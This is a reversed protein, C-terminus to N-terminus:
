NRVERWYIVRDSGRYFGFNLTGSPDDNSNDGDNDFRLWAQSSVDFNVIVSGFNNVGPASYWLGNGLSSTGNNLSQQALPSFIATEGDALNDTYSTLDFSSNSAIYVSCNDATNITWQTGDFFESRLRIELDETEPGYSDILRLRGLRVEFSNSSVTGSSVTDDDEAVLDIRLDFNTSTSAYQFNTDTALYNSAGNIFGLANATFNVQGNASAASSTDFGTATIQSANLKAFVGAYNLTTGNLANEAIITGSVDFGQGNKDLGVNTGDAYGAFTFSGCQESIVPASLNFHDPIFRGINIRQGTVNEVSSMFGTTLADLQLIGVESWSQSVTLSGADAAGTAPFSSFNITSNSLAGNSNTVVLATPTLTIAGSIQSLNPTALNDSLDGGTDPIGDADTDIFPDPIGDNNTDDAAQWIVSRLTMDFNAAAIAYAPDIEDNAFPDSAVSIDYGFPRVVFPSAGGIIEDINGSVPDGIGTEDKASISIEGVDDYQVSVTAVGNNFTVNQGASAAENTAVTTGNVNVQTPGSTPSSYNSWFNLIQVGTYEEIVGCNPQTPTQGAATLTLDFPRGAIQTGIPTPSAIYGFPRFTIVGESDDDTISGEAVEVDTTERITDELYLVVSGLDAAVFAYTAAGNNDGATDVLTGAALDSSTGGENTTFWNGNNTTLNLNVTGTYDSVVQDSSDVASITIAERLCNIGNGDHNIVFRDVLPTCVEVRQATISISDFIMAENNGGYNNEVRFRVRTNAAIYPTLDYTDVGSVDNSFSVIEFYNAGGDDSAYIDFRDSNELSNTRYDITLSASTYSSLDVERVMSPENGGNPRDNMFLEGGSIFIRNTNIVGTPSGDDFSEIWDGAWNATGDNNSFSATSFNDVFTDTVINGLVFTTSQTPFTTSLTYTTASTLTSTTLEVTTSNIYTAATVTVGNDISFNSPDAARAPSIASDFNVTVTTPSTCLATASDLGPFERVWLIDIADSVSVTNFSFETFDSNDVEIGITASAGNANDNGYRFRVNGDEFIVIQFSYNTTPGNFRPVSEWSAVFRRNPASGLTGYRVTGGLTPELDDWYGAIVRDAPEEFGAGGTVGTIALAENTYDKHFGQDAGFHLVGNSMVRVQTYPTEGLYFTFGLNILQYDDDQPFDTQTNDNTWVVNNTVTDFAEGTVTQFVYDARISSAFTLLIFLVGSCWMKPLDLQRFICDM